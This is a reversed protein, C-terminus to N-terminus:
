YCPIGSLFRGFNSSTGNCLQPFPPSLGLGQISNCSSATGVRNVQTLLISAHRMFFRMSDVSLATIEGGTDNQFTATIYRPQDAGTAYISLGRDVLGDGQQTLDTQLAANYGAVNGAWVSDSTSLSSMAMNNAVLSWGTPITTGGTGLTSDFNESYSGTMSIQAQASFIPIALFAAIFRPIFLQNTSYPFYHM